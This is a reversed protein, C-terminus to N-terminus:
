QGADAPALAPVVEGPAAAPVADAPAGADADAAPEEEVIEEEIPASLAAEIKGIRIDHDFLRPVIFLYSLVVFVVTSLFVGFIAAIVLTRLGQTRAEASKAGAQQADAM